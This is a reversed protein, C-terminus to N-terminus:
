RPIRELTKIAAGRSATALDLGSFQGGIQGSRNGRAIGRVVPIEGGGIVANGGGAGGTQATGGIIGIEKGEVDVGETWDWVLESKWDMVLALPM